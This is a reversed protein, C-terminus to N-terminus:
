KSRWRSPLATATSAAWNPQALFMEKLIQSAPDSDRNDNVTM